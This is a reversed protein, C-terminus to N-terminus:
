FSNFFFFIWALNLFLEWFNEFFLLISFEGLCCSFISAHFVVSASPFADFGVFRLKLSIHSIMETLNRKEASTTTIERDHTEDESKSVYVSKERERERKKENRSPAKNIFTDCSPFCTSALLARLPRSYKRPWVNGLSAAFLLSANWCWYFILFIFIVSKFFTLINNM